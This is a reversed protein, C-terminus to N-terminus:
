GQYAGQQGQAFSGRRSPTSPVIYGGGQTPVPSEQPVKMSPSVTLRATAAEGQPLAGRKPHPEAQVGASVGSTFAANDSALPSQGRGYTDTGTEYVDPVGKIRPGGMSMTGTAPLAVEGKATAEASALAADGSPPRQWFGNRRAEGEAMGLHSAPAGM